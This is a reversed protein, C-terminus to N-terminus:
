KIELANRRQLFMDNFRAIVKGIFEETVLVKLDDASKIEDESFKFSQEMGGAEFKLILKNNLQFISIAMKPHPITDVLRM